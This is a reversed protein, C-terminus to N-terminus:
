IQASFKYLSYCVGKNNYYCNTYSSYFYGKVLVCLVWVGSGNKYHKYQTRNVVSVIQGLFAEINAACATIKLTCGTHECPNWAPPLAALATMVATPKEPLAPIV